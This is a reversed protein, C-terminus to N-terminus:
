VVGLLPDACRCTVGLVPMRRKAGSTAFDSQCPFSFISQSWLALATRLTLADGTGINGLDVASFRRISTRRVIGKGLM